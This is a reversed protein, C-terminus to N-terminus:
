AALEEMRRLVAVTYPHSMPFVDPFDLPSTGERLHRYATMEVASGRRTPPWEKRKELYEPDSLIDSM